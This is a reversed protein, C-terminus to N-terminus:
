VENTGVGKLLYITDLQIKNAVRVIEERSVENIKDMFEDVSEDSELIVRNIYFDEIASLSDKTSGMATDIYKKASAIEDDSFEGNKMKNLQLMIEDYAADYKEAEIGSSIKLYGKHMDVASFVYYALSLKERVNNFLKSFPSGGYICSFLMFSYYEESNPAIGCNFGMCLKSQTVPMEEVINKVKIDKEIAALKTEVRKSNREKLEGFAAMLEMKMEEIDFSGGAFIDIECSELLDRYFLYLNEANIKELDEVYGYEFIGYPDDEFMIENCRVRAYEKKDNVLGLIFNKANEKEQKVYEVDFHGDELKPCLVFERMVDVVDSIISGNIFSDSVFGISFKLMEVDGRKSIGNSLTAGYLEQLKKSLLTMTPYKETGRKLVRPLLAAKTVTERCLPLRIYVSILNTKFKDTNFVRLNVGKALEFSKIEKM